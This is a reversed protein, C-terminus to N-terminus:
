NKHWLLVTRQLYIHKKVNVFDNLEKQDTRESRTKGLQNEETKTNWYVKAQCSIHKVNIDLDNLKKQNTQLLKNKRIKYYKNLYLQKYTKNGDM